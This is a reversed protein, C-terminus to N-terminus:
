GQSLSFVHLCIFVQDNPGIPTKGFVRQSNVFVGNRSNLDVVYWQGNEIVFQAHNRSVTLDSPDIQFDNGQGRGIRIPRGQSIMSLFLGTQASHEFEISSDGQIPHSGTTANAAQAAPQAEPLYEVQMEISGAAIIDGAKAPHATAAQIKNGNVFVGNTSNTDIIQLNPGDALIQLHSRSMSGTPDQVEFSAGGGSRGISIQQGEDFSFEQGTGKVTLKIRNAM